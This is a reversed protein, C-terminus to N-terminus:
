RRRFLSKIKKGFNGRNRKVGTYQSGPTGTGTDGSLHIEAMHEALDEPLEFVAQCEPCTYSSLQKVPSKMKTPTPEDQPQGKHETHGKPYAADHRKIAKGREKPSLEGEPFEEVGTTKIPSSGMTKFKLPGNGSRMKFAM